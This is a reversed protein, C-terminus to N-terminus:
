LEFQMYIGGDMPSDNYKEIRKFGKAEYLKIAETLFPLTDLKLYTYGAEKADTIIKDVLLSGIGANRFKDRVYLRKLEGSKEDMQKLAVCGVIDNKCFVIYLRGQPPAYKAKLDELEKDYNQQDLYKAFVPDNEVLMSTYEMFLEKIEEKYEFAPIIKLEM